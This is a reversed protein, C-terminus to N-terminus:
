PHDGFKAEVMLNLCILKKEGQFKYNQLLKGM